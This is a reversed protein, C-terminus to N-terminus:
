LKLLRCFIFLTLVWKSGLHDVHLEVRKRYCTAALLLIAVGGGGWGGGGAEGEIPHYDMSINGWLTDRLTRPGM